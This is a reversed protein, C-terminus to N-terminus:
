MKSGFIESNGYSSALNVDFNLGEISRKTAVYLSQGTTKFYSQVEPAFEDYLVINLNDIYKGLNSVLKQHLDMVLPKDEKAYLLLGDHKESHLQNSVTDQINCPGIDKEVDHERLNGYDIRDYTTNENYQAAQSNSKTVTANSLRRNGDGPDFKDQLNDPEQASKKVSTNAKKQDEQKTNQTGKKLIYWLMGLGFAVPFVTKCM